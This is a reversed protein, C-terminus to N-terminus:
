SLQFLWLQYIEISPANQVPILSVREFGIKIFGANVFLENVDTESMWEEVPQNPDSYKKWEKEADKRPTTIILYGEKKLLSKIDSAFSSKELDPIHEIVESSVILDYNAEKKLDLLTKTTGQIIKLDPFLKRSHAVVDGVPEIGTVDGFNSLLNTLWGRGCGLDLIQLKKGLLKSKKHNIKYKVFSQIVRWRLIEDENPAANNWTPNNIFLQKYFEEEKAERNIRKISTLLRKIPGM